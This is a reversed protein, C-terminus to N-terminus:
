ADGPDGADEAAAREADTFSVDPAAGTVYRSVSASAAAYAHRTGRSNAAYNMSSQGGIGMGGAEAFADQKAGLYVFKWGYKSQQEATMDRIQAKSYERSRNEGGDTAVVVFIKGPRADAPMKALKVGESTIAFGVGDLLATGGRPVLTYPRMQDLPIFSCVTDHETDFEYLSVTAKGPLAKQEAAFQAIGGEADDKISQMSGSRDVIIVYHRYSPDTM